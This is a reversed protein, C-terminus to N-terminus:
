RAGDMTDNRSKSGKELQMAAATIQKEFRLGIILNYICVSVDLTKVSRKRRLNQQQCNM